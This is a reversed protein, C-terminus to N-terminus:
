RKQKKTKKESLIYKESSKWKPNENVSLRRVFHQESLRGKALEASLWYIITPVIKEGM